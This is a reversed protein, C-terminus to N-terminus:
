SLIIHKAFYILGCETRKGNKRGDFHWPFLRLAGNLFVCYFFFFFFLRVCTFSNRNKQNRKYYRDISRYLYICYITYKSKSKKAVKKMFIVQPLRRSIAILSSGNGYRANQRIIFILVFLHDIHWFRCCVFRKVYKKTWKTTHQTTHIHASHVTCQADFDISM